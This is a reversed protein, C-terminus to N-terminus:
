ILLQQKGFRIVRDTEANLSFIQQLLKDWEHCEIDPSYTLPGEIGTDCEEFSIDGTKTCIWLKGNTCIIPYEPLPNKPKKPMVCGSNEM